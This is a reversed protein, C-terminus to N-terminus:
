DHNAALVVVSGHLVQDPKPVLLIASGIAETIGLPVWSIFAGGVEQLKEVDISTGLGDIRVKQLLAM